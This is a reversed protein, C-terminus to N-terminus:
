IADKMCHRFMKRTNNVTKPDDLKRKRWLTKDGEPKLMQRRRIHPQNAWVSVDAKYSRDAVTEWATPIPEPDANPGSWYRHPIPSRKTDGPPTNDPPAPAVPAVAVDPGNTGDSGDYYSAVYSAVKDTMM